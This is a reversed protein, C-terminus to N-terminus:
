SKGVWYNVLRKLRTALYRMWGFKKKLVYLFLGGMRVTKENWRM